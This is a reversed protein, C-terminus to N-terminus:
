WRKLSHRYPIGINFGNLFCFRQDIGIDAAMMGYSINRECHRKTFCLKFLAKAPLIAFSQKSVETLYAHYFCHFHYRSRILGKLQHCFGAAKFVGAIKDSGKGFMVVKCGAFCSFPGSCTLGAQM